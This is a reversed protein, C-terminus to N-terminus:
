AQRPLGEGRHFPVEEVSGDAREITVRCVRGHGGKEMVLRDGPHCFVERDFLITQAVLGDFGSEEASVIGSSGNVEIELNGDSLLWARHKM